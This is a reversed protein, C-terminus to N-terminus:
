SNKICRVSLGSKKIIKGKQLYEEEDFKRYRAYNKDGALMQGGGEGEESATWFYSECGENEFNGFLDRKGTYPLLSFRPDNEEYLNVEKLLDDLNRLLDGFQSSSVVEGDNEGLFTEMINWEKDESIHWGKPALGRPDNVAFWNYLKGYKPGNAPENEYYCWAAQENENAETWDAETKAETILDGNQFKDVNLNETMWVQYGITVKKM